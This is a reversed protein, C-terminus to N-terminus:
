QEELIIAQAVKQWINLPSGSWDDWYQRVKWVQDHKRMVFQVNVPVGHNYYTAQTDVTADIGSTQTVNLAGYSLPTAGSFYSLFGPILIPDWDLSDESLTDKFSDIDQANVADQFQSITEEISRTNACASFFSVIALVILIVFILKKMRM